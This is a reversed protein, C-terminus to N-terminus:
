REGFCPRDSCWDIHAAEDNNGKRYTPRRDSDGTRPGPGPRSVPTRPGFHQDLRVSPMPTTSGFALFTLNLLLYPRWHIYFQPRPASREPGGPPCMGFRLSNKLAVAAAAAPLKTM